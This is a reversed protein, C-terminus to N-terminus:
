LGPFVRSWTPPSQRSAAFRPAECDSETPPAGRGLKRSPPLLWRNVQDPWMTEPMPAQDQVNM